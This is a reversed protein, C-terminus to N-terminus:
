GGGELMGGFISTTIEDIRLTDDKIKGALTLDDFPVDKIIGNAISITVDGTLPISLDESRGPGPGDVAHVHNIELDLDRIRIIEEPPNDASRTTYTVDANKIDIEDPLSMRDTFPTMDLEFLSTKLIYIPRGASKRLYLSAMNFSGSDKEIISIVPEKVAIGDVVVNGSLLPLMKVSVDVERATLFPDNSFDPDDAISLEKLIIKPGSIISFSLDGITVARGLRGSLWVATNNRYASTDILTPLFILSATAVIVVCSVIILAIISQRTMVGAKLMGQLGVVPWLHM